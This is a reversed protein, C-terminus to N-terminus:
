QADRVALVYHGKPKDGTYANDGLPFGVLWMLDPYGTCPTSSWYYYDKHIDLMSKCPSDDLNKLEEKTPLRWDNYNDLSLGSAYNDASQWDKPGISAKQWMLDTQNDTVTKGNDVCLKWGASFATGSMVLVSLCLAFSAMAPLLLCLRCYPKDM